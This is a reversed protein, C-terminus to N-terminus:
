PKAVELAIAEDAPRKADIEAKTIVGKAILAERLAINEKELTALKDPEPQDAVPDPVDRQVTEVLVRNGKEDQTYVEETIRTM